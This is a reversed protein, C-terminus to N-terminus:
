FVEIIIEYSEIKELYFLSIKGCNKFSSFVRGAFCSLQISVM